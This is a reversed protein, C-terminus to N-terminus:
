TGAPSRYLDHPPTGRNPSGPYALRQRSESSGRSEGPFRLGRGFTETGKARKVDAACQHDRSLSAITAPLRRQLSEGSPDAHRRRVHRQVRGM